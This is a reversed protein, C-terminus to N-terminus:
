EYYERVTLSSLGENNMNNAFEAALADRMIKSFYFGLSVSSNCSFDIKDEVEDIRRNKISDM